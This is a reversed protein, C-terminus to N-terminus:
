RLLNPVLATPDDPKFLFDLQLCLHDNWTNPYCPLSLRFYANKRIVLKQATRASFDPHWSDTLIYPRAKYVKIEKSTEDQTYISQDEEQLDEAMATKFPEAYERKPQIKSLLANQDKKKYMSLAVRYSGAYRQQLVSLHDICVCVEVEATYSM